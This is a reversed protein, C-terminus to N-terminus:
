IYQCRWAKFRKQLLLVSNVKIKTLCEMLDNLSFNEIEGAIEGTQSNQYSWPLVKDLLWNVKM